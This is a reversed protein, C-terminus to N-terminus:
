AAYSGPLMRMNTMRWPAQQRNVDVRRKDMNTRNKNHLGLKAPIEVKEAFFSCTNEHTKLYIGMRCSDVLWIKM